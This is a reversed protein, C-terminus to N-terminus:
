YAKLLKRKPCNRSVPLDIEDKMDLDIRRLQIIIHGIQNPIDLRKRINNFIYNNTKIYSKEYGNLIYTTSDSFFTLPFYSVIAAAIKANESTKTHM